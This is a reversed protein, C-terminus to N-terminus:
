FTYFVGGKISSDTGYSPRFQGLDLDLELARRANFRHGIGAILGPSTRRDNGDFQYHTEWWTLNAGTVAYPGRHNEAFFWLADAGLSVGEVTTTSTLSSPHFAGGDLRTYDLRPRLENTGGLEVCWNAGAQFGIRGNVAQRLDGQPSVLLGQIGIRAGQSSNAPAGQDFFDVGQAPLPVTGIALCFILALSKLNM